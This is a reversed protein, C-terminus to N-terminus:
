DVHEGVRGAGFEGSGKLLTPHVNSQKVANSSACLSEIPIDYLRFVALLSRRPENSRYPYDGDTM